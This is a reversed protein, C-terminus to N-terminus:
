IEVVTYTNDLLTFDEGKKQNTIIFKGEQNQLVVFLKATPYELLIKNMFPTLTDDNQSYKFVCLATSLADAITGDPMIVTASQIGTTIPAGTNADIIHCYRVDQNAFYKQYDGSTSVSLNKLQKDISIIQGSKRPHSIGLSSVNLLRLSSGGVNIYGNNFGQETLINSILDCAYGKVIGGFDIKAGELTKTLLNNSLAYANEFNTTGSSLLDQIQGENPRNFNNKDFSPAFGWLVSLPYVAPNFAGETFQFQSQAYTFVQKERETLTISEGVSLSNFRATLSNQRNVSFDNELQNLISSIQERTQNSLKGEYVEVHIETTFNYFDAYDGEPSCSAFFTSCILTLVSFFICLLKKM